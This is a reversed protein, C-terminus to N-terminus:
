GKVAALCADFDPQDAIEPVYQAYKVKGEADVVFVARCHIGLDPIYTGWKAAFDRVKYDSLAEINQADSAGCWRAQAPPLDASIVLVKVDDGLNAAESNFRKAELDCVPTDLSPVVVLVATKGKYDSIKVNDKLSKSLVADPAADGAKIEDGALEVPNGKLTVTRAM